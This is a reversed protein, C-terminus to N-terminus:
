EFFNRAAKPDVDEKRIAAERVRGADAAEYGQAQVDTKKKEAELAIANTASKGGAKFIGIIAILFALAALAWIKLNGLM